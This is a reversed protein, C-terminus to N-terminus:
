LQEGNNNEAVEEEQPNVVITKKPNIIVDKGDLYFTYNTPSDDGIVKNVQKKQELTLDGFTTLTANKIDSTTKVTTQGHKKHNPDDKITIMVPEAIRGVRESGSGSKASSSAKIINGNSDVTYGKQALISKLYDPNYGEIKGTNNDTKYQWEFLAKSQKRDQAQSPTEYSLDREYSYKTQGLAAYMGANIAEDIKARNTTDYKNYEIADRKSKAIDTFQKFKKKDTDTLDKDIEWLYKGTIPDRQTVYAIDANDLGYAQAVQYYGQTGRVKNWIPDRMLSQALAGVETAISKTTGSLSVQKPTVTKGGLFADLTLDNDQYVYDEGLKLRRNVEENLKAQATTLQSMTQKYDRAISKLRSRLGSSLGQTALEDSLGRLNNEATQYMKAAQSGPTLADTFREELTKDLLDETEKYEQSYMQLPVLLEQFSFPNFASKGVIYAM